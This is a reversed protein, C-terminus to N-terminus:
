KSNKTLNPKPVTVRTWGHSIFRALMRSLFGIRLPWPTRFEVNPNLVQKLIRRQAISQFWQILKTPLMRKSQIRKLDSASLTGTKLPEALIGAAVIADQIAYNIGVGGVPSMVHAADGLLIVNEDSWKELRSSEVSLLSTDKWDHIADMRSGVPGSISSIRKKLWDIRESRIDIFTGHLFVFGVQWEQERELIILLNGHGVHFGPVISDDESRPIRFWLVDMPVSNEVPKLELLKRLRSHRGDTGVILDAQVIWSQDDQHFELDYGHSRQILNSARAGMRVQFSAHKKAREVMFGLFQSQPMMTVYPFKSDLEKFSITAASKGAVQIELQEMKGHPLKLLDDALGMQDLLEMIGSHLTDGRFDRDFDHHKELLLVEVGVQSLM